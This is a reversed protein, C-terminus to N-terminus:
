QQQQYKHHYHRRCQHDQQHHHHGRRHHHRYTIIILNRAFSFITIPELILETDFVFTVHNSPTFKWLGFEFASDNPRLNKRVTPTKSVCNNMGRVGWHTMIRLRRHLIPVLVPAM